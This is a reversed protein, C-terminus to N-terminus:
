RGDDEGEMPTRGVVIAPLSAIGHADTLTVAWEYNTDLALVDDGLITIRVSASLRDVECPNGDMQVTDFAIHNVERADVSGDVEQDYWIDVTYRDLDGNEDRADFSFLLSPVVVGHYDVM